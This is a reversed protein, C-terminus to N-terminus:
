RPEEEAPWEGVLCVTGDGGVLRAPLRLQALWAPAADARILAATSAVNADLCTEAAVSVTRWSLAVPAGTAPDIIHHQTRGEHRWRRATTSSTAIGGSRIAITQGQSGPVHRHDDTVYIRWGERPAAGATAIDGGLGVLSGAGTADHVAAAARDAVWAKATAGLDLRVGTPVRIASRERDLEIARWGPTVRATIAPRAADEPEAAGPAPRELLAWDRDYGALLLANGVTPDVDGDTLAAARLAVEVAEILLPDVGVFRGAGANVLQLDSDPRFRSCARDVAHLEREVVKRAGALADPDDVLLVVSTGLAEWSARALTMPPTTM